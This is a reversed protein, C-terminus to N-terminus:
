SMIDDAAELNFLDGTRRGGSTAQHKGALELKLAGQLGNHESDGDAGDAMECVNELEGTTIYPIPEGERSRDRVRNAIKVLGELEDRSVVTRDSNIKMDLLEVEKAPPLTEIPIKCFRRVFSSPLPGAGLDAPNITAAAYFEPHPTVIKDAGKVYLEADDELVKYLARLVSNPAANPEDLCLMGGNQVIIPLLADEFEVTGDDVTFNGMLEQIMTDEDMPITVLPRNTEHCAHRLRMNKGTGPPGIFMVNRGKSFMKAAVPLDDAGAPTEQTIVPGPDDPVLPHGIDRLIHWGHFNNQEPPNLPPGPPQKVTNLDIVQGRGDNDTQLTELRSLSETALVSEIDARSSAASILAEAITTSIQPVNTLDSKSADTVADWTTYGAEALCDAKASGIGEVNTFDATATEVDTHTGVLEGLPSLGPPRAGDHTVDTITLRDHHAKALTHSGDKTEVDISDVVRRHFYDVISGNPCEKDDPVPHATPLGDQVQKLANPGNISGDFHLIADALLHTATDRITRHQQKSLTDASM